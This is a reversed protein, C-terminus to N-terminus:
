ALAALTFHPHLFYPHKARWAVAIGKGELLEM